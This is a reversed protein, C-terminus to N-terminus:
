GVGWSFRFNTIRIPPLMVLIPIERYDRLTLQPKLLHDIVLHWLSGGPTVALDTRSCSKTRPPLAM